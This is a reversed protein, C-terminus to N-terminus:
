WDRNTQYLYQIIRCRHTLLLLFSEGSPLWQAAAVKSFKSKTGNVLNQQRRLYGSTVTLMSYFAKNLYASVLNQVVLDLQHEGCWFRILHYGEQEVWSSDFPVSGLVRDSMNRSRDSCKSFQRYGWSPCVAMRAKEFAEFLKYGIHRGNIPLFCLHLCYLRTCKIFRM